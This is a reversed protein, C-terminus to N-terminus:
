PSLLTDYSGSDHLPFRQDRDALWTLYVTSSRPIIVPLSSQCIPALLFFIVFLTNYLENNQHRTHLARFIFALLEWAAGM